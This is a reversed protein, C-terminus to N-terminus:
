LPRRSVTVRKRLHMCELGSSLNLSVSQRISKAVTNKEKGKREIREEKKKKKVNMNNAM